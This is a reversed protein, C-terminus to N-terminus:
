IDRSVSVKNEGISYTKLTVLDRKDCCVGTVFIPRKCASVNLVETRRM